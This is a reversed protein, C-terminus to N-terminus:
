FGDLFEQRLAYEEIGNRVREPLARRLGEM